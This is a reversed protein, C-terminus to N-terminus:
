KRTWVFNENTLNQEGSWRYACLFGGKAVSYDLCAVNGALLAPREATLWYHGLFVPKSTTPYPLAQHIVSEDLPLDCDIEVSQLAYTRYTHGDPPLYWRTRIRTRTNGDPDTFTKGDPLKGEKGELAIEVPAFLPLHERYASHLFPSTIGGHDGRAQALTSMVDDDWCAHVVRLDDFELWLPLTRFWELYSSLEDADLQALTQGHQKVNKASHRRLFEDPSDPDPTRFALANMEHNGMVALANGDEVMPRVIELVQRIKPGRDIFDGLFIVKRESHAYAGRDKRYGLTELLNVLEDAYGHIDGILDYMPGTKQRPQKESAKELGQIASQEKQCRTAINKLCTSSWIRRIM